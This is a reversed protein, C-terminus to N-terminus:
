YTAVGICIPHPCVREFRLGSDIAGSDNVYGGLSDAISLRSSRQCGSDSQEFRYLRAISM